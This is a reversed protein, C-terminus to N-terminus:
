MWIVSSSRSVLGDIFLLLREDELAGNVVPWLASQGWSSLWTEVCESLSCEGSDHIRKTWFGFPIFVPLKEGLASAIEPHKPANSLIDLVLYRLLASKGSGPGGM